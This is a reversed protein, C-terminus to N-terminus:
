HDLEFKDADLLVPFNTRYKNLEAADLEAILISEENAAPGHMWVGLPNIVGSAGAHEINNGDTGVRNVALCYSQNEIARATLLSKWQYERAAPWNAMYVLVDYDGTNRAWVPFRLDYCILLNIRWGEVNVVTRSKGPKFFKNEDSMRFLHRKNYYTVRAAKDVFIARNYFEGYSTVIISGVIATNYKQAMLKMWGVTPGDMDEALSKANMSFGTTFMEPLVILDVPASLNAIKKEFNARNVAENEWELSSQFLAVKLIEKM